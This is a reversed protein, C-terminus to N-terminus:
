ARDAEWESRLFEAVREARERSQFPEGVGWWQYGNTSSSIRYIPSGGYSEETVTVEIPEARPDYETM